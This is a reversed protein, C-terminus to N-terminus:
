RAVEQPTPAPRNHLRRPDVGVRRWGAAAWPTYLVRLPLRNFLPNLARVIKAFRQFSREKRDDWPLDCIQRMQPPVTGVVVIQLYANLPASLFRWLFKPMWRPGPVGKRLYGTAYRITANPRFHELMSEWYACFEAYTQPQSRASVGYLEYWTKSEEFIQAKEAESLRRIFTDTTYLVQDVFTAHGWYFLEPNLAHYRSGDSMTGKIHRHFDRVKRGWGYPDESYVASLIPPGTRKARGITDTFFISHDETGQALQEISNETGAVRQFGFLHTRWDGFFKWILSEAGLCPASGLDDPLDTPMAVGERVGEDFTRPADPGTTTSM